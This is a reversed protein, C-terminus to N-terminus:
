TSSPDDPQSVNEQAVIRIMKRVGSILLTETINFVRNDTGIRVLRWDTQINEPQARIYIMHRQQSRQQGAFSKESGMPTWRSGSSGQVGVVPLFSAWVKRLETWTVTFSGDANQTRTPTQLSLRTRFTGPDIAELIM